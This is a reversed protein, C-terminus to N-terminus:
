LIYFWSITMLCIIMRIEITQRIELLVKQHNFEKHNPDLNAAGFNEEEMPLDNMAEDVISFSVQLIL